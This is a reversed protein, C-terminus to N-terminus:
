NLMLESELIKIETKGPLIEGIGSTDFPDIDEDQEFSSSPVIPTLPKVSTDEPPLELVETISLRRLSSFSESDRRLKELISTGAVVQTTDQSHIFENELIKIEAKGPILSNAISTDFPDIDEDKLVSPEDFIKKPAVPTHLKTELVVEDSLIDPQETKTINVPQTSANEIGRPDFDPDSLSHKLQKKEEVLEKELIKLEIKGPCNSIHSTDFPDVDRESKKIDQASQSPYYPTLPKGIKINEDQGVALLDKEEEPYKVDFAVVKPVSSRKGVSLNDPRPPPKNVSWREEARPDFENDVDVKFVPQNQELLEKELVKLETKGPVVFVDAISTDFPDGIEFEPEESLSKPAIPSQNIKTLDTTSGGLLDRHKLSLPELQNDFPDQVSNHVLRVSTESNQLVLNIKEEVSSHTVPIEKELIEKEILKLEFKGPLIESAFTTDFPDDGQIFPAEDVEANGQEPKVSPPQPRPPPPKKSLSEAALIAFEDDLDDEEPKSSKEDTLGLGPVFEEVLEKFVVNKEVSKQKQVICIPKNEAIPTVPPLGLVASTEEEFVPDDDLISKPEPEVVASVSKLDGEDFSGLLLDQTKPRKRPTSATEKCPSKDLKGTLVEVACGLNVLSRKQEKPDLKIVKDVISTDFPDPGALAEIPSDPVFALKVEGSAVVDVFSTDFIDDQDDEFESEEEEEEVHEEHQEQDKEESEAQKEDKSEDNEAAGGEEFGVWKSKKVSKGETTSPQPEKIPESPGPPKKQFYSTSKIRDLDGQTKKLIDDVGSTLAKFKLWEESEANTTEGEQNGEGSEKKKEQQQRRYEELEASDFLDDEKHKSKKGKKKKKLGKTIKLM